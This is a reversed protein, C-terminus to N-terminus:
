AQGKTDRLLMGQRIQPLSNDVCSSIWDRINADPMGAECMFQVLAAMSGQIVPGCDYGVAEDAAFREINSAHVANLARYMGAQIGQSMRGYLEQDPMWDPSPEVNPKLSM